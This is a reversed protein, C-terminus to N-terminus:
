EATTRPVATFNSYHGTENKNLRLNGCPYGGLGGQVTSSGTRDGYGSGSSDGGKTGWAELIYQGQPLSPFGALIESTTM